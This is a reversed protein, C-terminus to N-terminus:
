VQALKERAIRNISTGTEAAKLALTGTPTRPGRVMFKGSYQRDAIPEPIKEGAQEMDAVCDAVLAMIGSLAAQPSDDLWGLSPFEACLGVYERDEASWIVQYTYHDRDKM